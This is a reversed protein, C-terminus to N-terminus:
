GSVTIPDGTALARECAGAVRLTALADAPTCAVVGRDGV